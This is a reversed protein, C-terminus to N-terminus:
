GAGPSRGSIPPGGVFAKSEIVVINLDITAVHDTKAEVPDLFHPLDVPDIVLYPDAAQVDFVLGGARSCAEPM